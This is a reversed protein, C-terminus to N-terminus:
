CSLGEIDSQTSNLVGDLAEEVLLLQQYHLQQNQNLDILIIWAVARSLSSFFGIEKGRSRDSAKPPYVLFSGRVKEVRYNIIHINMPKRKNSVLKGCVGKADSANEFSPQYKVEVKSKSPERKILTNSM